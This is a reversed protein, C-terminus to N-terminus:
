AAPIQGKDMQMAAHRKEDCERQLKGHNVRARRLQTEALELDEHKVKTREALVVPNITRKMTIMDGLRNILRPKDEEAQRADLEAQYADKWAAEANIYAMDTLDVRQGAEAIIPAYEDIVAQERPGIPDPDPGFVAVDVLGKQGCFWGLEVKRCIPRTAGCHKCTAM